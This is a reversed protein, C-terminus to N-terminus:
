SRPILCEGCVDCFSYGRITDFDTKKIEELMKVHESACAELAETVSEGNVIEFRSENFKPNKTGCIFCFRNSPYVREGCGVCDNGALSERLAEMYNGLCNTCHVIHSRINELSARNKVLKKILSCSTFYYSSWHEVVEKLIERSSELLLFNEACKPCQIIHEIGEDKSAKESRLRQM